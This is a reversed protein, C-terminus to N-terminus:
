LILFLIFNLIVGHTWIKGGFIDRFFFVTTPSWTSVNKDNQSLIFLPNQFNHLLFASQTVSQTAFGSLEEM